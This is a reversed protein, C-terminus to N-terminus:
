ILFSQPSLIKLTSLIRQLKALINSSMCHVTHPPEDKRCYFFSDIYEGLLKTQLLISQQEKRESSPSDKITQDFAQLKTKFNCYKSKSDTTLSNNIETNTFITARLEYILRRARNCEAKLTNYVNVVEHRLMENTKILKHHDYEQNTGIIITPTSISAVKCQYSAKKYPKSNIVYHEILQRDMVENKDDNEEYTKDNNTFQNIGLSSNRLCLWAIEILSTSATLLSYVLQDIPKAPVNYNVTFVKFYSVRMM